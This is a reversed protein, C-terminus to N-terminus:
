KLFTDISYIYDMPIHEILSSILSEDNAIIEATPVFKINGDFEGNIITGYKRMGNKLVIMVQTTDMIRTKLKQDFM